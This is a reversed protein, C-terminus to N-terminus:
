HSYPSPYGKIITQGGPHPPDVFVVDDSISYTRIGGALDKCILTGRCGQKQLAPLSQYFGENTGSLVLSKPIVQRQEGDKDGVQWFQALWKSISSRGSFILQAVEEPVKLDCGSIWVITQFWKELKAGQGNVEEVLQTLVEEPLGNVSKFREISFERPDNM